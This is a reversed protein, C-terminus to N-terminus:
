IALDPLTSPWELAGLQKILKGSCEGSLYNILSELAPFKDSIEWFDGFNPM